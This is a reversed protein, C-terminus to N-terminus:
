CKLKEGGEFKELETGAQLTCGGIDLWLSFYNNMIILRKEFYNEFCPIPLLTIVM